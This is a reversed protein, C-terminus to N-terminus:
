KKGWLFKLCLGDVLGQKFATTPAWLFYGFTIGQIFMLVMWIAIEIDIM